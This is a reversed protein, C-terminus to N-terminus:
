PLYTKLEVSARIISKVAAPDSVAKLALFQVAANGFVTAESPGAYVKKNCAKAALRCLIEAKTGGGIMYLAGFTRGTLRELEQLAENYRAALSEYVCRAIDGIDDPGPKGTKKEIFARIKGPMGGPKAFSEDDVDILTRYSSKEAMAALEAYSLNIGEDIWNRRSENIIWLGMINKLLRVCGGFGSENTYDAAFSDDNILPNVATTGLLSWTGCSIYAPHEEPAPTSFVASATDHACINIVPVPPVGLEECIEPLLTGCVNGAPVIEPFVSRPLGLRDILEFDWQRTEANLLQTTSAVSCECLIRGTLLMNFLDPMMVFKDAAALLEPKRTKLYVLQYLTNFSMFQIGTRRYIYDKPVSAFVEEMMGDTRSDRYHVPPSLIKGDKDVLAFDVGWTDIGISDFGGAEAALRIGKKLEGFLYPLDWCLTGDIQAPINDFRHVESLSIKGDKLSCIIARASTAGFDFALVRKNNELM